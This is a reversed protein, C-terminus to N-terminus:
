RWVTLVDITLGEVMSKCRSDTVRVLLLCRMADGPCSDFANIDLYAVCPNGLLAASIQDVDVAAQYRHAKRKTSQNSVIPCALPLAGHVAAVRVLAILRFFIHEGAVDRVFYEFSCTVDLSFACFINCPVM